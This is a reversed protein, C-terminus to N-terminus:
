LRAQFCHVSRVAVTGFRGCYRQTVRTSGDRKVSPVTYRVM